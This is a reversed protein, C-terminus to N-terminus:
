LVKSHHNVDNEKKKFNREGNLLEQVTVHFIKSLETLYSIDPANIGREWKSVSTDLIGLKDALEKQTLKYEKRLESIFLGMKEQNM